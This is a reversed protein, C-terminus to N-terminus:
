SEQNLMKNNKRKKKNLKKDDKIKGEKKARIKDM